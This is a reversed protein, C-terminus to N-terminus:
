IKERLRGNEMQLVEDTIQELHSPDHSITILSLKREERIRTLLEVLDEKSRHDLYTTPEDLLMISAGRILARALAVKQLEGGSLARCDAKLKHLLGVEELAQHVAAKDSNQPMKLFGFTKGWRGMLVADWVSVPLKGRVSQQPVYALQRRVWSRDKENKLECELVIVRGRQPKVLGLIVKFLTTKGAGNPGAIGLSQGEKLDISLGQLVPERGYSSWLDEIRIVSMNNRPGIM